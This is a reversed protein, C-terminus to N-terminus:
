SASGERYLEAEASRRKVLGPLARGAAFVWRGFEVAAGSYDGAKHLKTLTAKGIAGTNYHFSVLADFQAQTTPADGLAKSVEAAYRAIDALLRDDAQKQTWVVGKKIGPGTAGWGITWPEGGSGPDPYATLSCGEFKKILAIAAPSAARTPAKPKAPAPTPTERAIKLTDLLTDIAGVEKTDFAKGGRAAKIAEFIPKRSM